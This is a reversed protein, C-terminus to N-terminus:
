QGLKDSPRKETRELRKRQRDLARKADRKSIGKASALDAVRAYQEMGKAWADWLRKDAKARERRAVRKAQQDPGVKRRRKLQTRTPKQVALRMGARGEAFARRVRYSLEETTVIVMRRFSPVIGYPRFLRKAQSYLREPLQKTEQQLRELLQREDEETWAGAQDFEGTDRLRQQQFEAAREEFALVEEVVTVLSGFADAIKPHSSLGGFGREALDADIEHALSTLRRHFKAVAYNFCTQRARADFPNCSSVIEGKRPRAPGLRDAHFAFLGGLRGPGSPRPDAPKGISLNVAITGRHGARATEETAM